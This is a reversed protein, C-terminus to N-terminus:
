ANAHHGRAVAPMREALQAAEALMGEILDRVSVVDHIMGAVQGAASQRRAAKGEEYRSGRV